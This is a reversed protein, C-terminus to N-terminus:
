DDGLNLGLECAHDFGSNRRKRRLFIENLFEVRAGGVDLGDLFEDIPVAEAFRLEAVDGIGHVSGSGADKGFNELAVADGAVFDTARVIREEAARMGLRDLRVDIWKALGDQGTFVVDAEGGVTVTVADTGDITVAGEDIRVLNESQEDPVKDACALEFAIDGFSEGDCFEDVLEGGFVVALEVFDGDAEFVDALKHELLINQDAAFLAAADAGAHIEGLTVGGDRREEEGFQHRPMAFCEAFEESGKVLFEALIVVAADIEVELGSLFFLGDVM